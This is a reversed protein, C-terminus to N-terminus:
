SPRWSLNESQLRTVFEFALDGAYRSQQDADTYRRIRPRGLDVLRSEVDLSITASEAGFSINMQDMEGTFVTVASKVGSVDVGFKVAVKRAQYPESLALSVLNSPIGSLTLTAGYAAIDSSERVESLQLLTGAGTYTNGDLSLEGLGNWFYLENPSDFLLDCAWFVNIEDDDLANAIATALDRSM